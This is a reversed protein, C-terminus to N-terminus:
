GAEMQCGSEGKTLSDAENLRFIHCEDNIEWQFAARTACYRKVTSVLQTKEGLRLNACIHLQRDKRVLRILKQEGKNYM